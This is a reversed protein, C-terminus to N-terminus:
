QEIKEYVATMRKLEAKPYESKMFRLAEEGDARTEGAYLAIFNGIAISEGSADMRGDFEYSVAAMNPCQYSAFVKRDLQNNQERRRDSEARELYEGGDCDQDMSYTKLIVAYFPASEYPTNAKLRSPMKFSLEWEDFTKERHQCPKEPDPCVANAAPPKSAPAPTSEALEESDSAHPKDAISSQPRDVNPASNVNSSDPERIAAGLKCGTVVFVFLVIILLHKQM